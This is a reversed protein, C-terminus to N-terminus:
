HHLHTQQATTTRSEDLTPPLAIAQLGNETLYELLLPLVKLVVPPTDKRSTTDHLLLIDGAALNTILRKLVKHPDRLIRDYGRRTWAVHTLDLNRLADALLPSRFGMPARFYRPRQDGADTLTCQAKQIDAYLAKTNFTAFSSAHHYSHNEVSHGRRLIERILHPYRAAQRGICFFSARAGHQELIDLVQPTVIPDPGDDFTLAIAGWMADKPPLRTHNPGLLQCRPCMVLAILIAFNAGLVALGEHWNLAGLYVSVWTVSQILLSIQHAPVILLESIPNGTAPQLNPM